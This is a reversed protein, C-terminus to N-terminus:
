EEPEQCEVHQVHSPLMYGRRSFKERRVREIGKPLVGGIAMSGKSGCRPKENPPLAKAEKLKKAERPFRENATSPHTPLLALTM